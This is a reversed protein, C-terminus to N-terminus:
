AEDKAMGFIREMMSHCMACCDSRDTYPDIAMCKPCLLKSEDCWVCTERIMQSLEALGGCKECATVV